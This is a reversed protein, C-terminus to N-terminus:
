PCRNPPRPIFVERTALTRVQLQPKNGTEEKPVVFLFGSQEDSEGQNLQLLDGECVGPWAGHNLLVHPSDKPDHVWATLVTSEGHKLPATVLKFVSQVTDSRRRGYQSERSISMVAAPCLAKPIEGRCTRERASWTTGLVISERNKYEIRSVSAGFESLGLSTYQVSLM